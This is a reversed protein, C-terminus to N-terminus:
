TEAVGLPLIFEAYESPHPDIYVDGEAEVRKALAFLESERARLIQIVKKRAHRFSMGDRLRYFNELDQAAVNWDSVDFGRGQGFLATAFYGGLTVLARHREGQPDGEPSSSLYGSDCYDGGGQDQCEEVHIRYVEHGLAKAVIAHGAEHLARLPKTPDTM